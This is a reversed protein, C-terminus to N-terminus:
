EWDTSRDLAHHSRHDFFDAGLDTEAVLELAVVAAGGNVARPGQPEAPHGNKEAPLGPKETPIGHLEIRRPVGAADIWLRVLEPGRGRNGGRRAELVQLGADAGDGAAGGVSLRYGRRLGDLGSRLDLFPIEDREGPVSRRFRRPDHSLHVNGRPPVSWGITGDSGNVFLSGDAFRRVLVFADGGRVFLRGGDIGPQRGGRGSPVPDPPGEPGHDLVRIVYERDVPAIAAAVARELTGSAAWAPAVAQRAFLGAMMLLGVLAAATVWRRDPGAVGARADPVVTSHELGTRFLDALRDHLLVARVFMAAAAPDEALRGDLVVTEAASLDGDLHRDIIHRLDDM